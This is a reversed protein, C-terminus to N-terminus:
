MKAVTTLTLPVGVGDKEGPALALVVLLRLALRMGLTLGVAEPVGVSEEPAELVGVGEGAALPEVSKRAVQVNSAPAPPITM